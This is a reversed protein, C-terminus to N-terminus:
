ALKVVKAEEGLLFRSWKEMVEGRREFLDSRAYSREVKDGFAHALAAEAVEREVKAYESCWDRFTSRFGHTTLDFYKMRDMLSKFVTDSLPKEVGPGAHASPFILDQGLGEMQELVKMAGPSLPVRHLVGSKMRQPPVFWIVDVIEKWQAERAESSRALTFIIYELCRAANGQRRSLEAMFEPMKRWDLAAMHEAKYKISPLASEIGTVPNTQSYHGAHIAWNFMSALRQKIRKATDHKSVWIVSLVALIDSNTITELPRDKLKPFAHQEMGSIWRQSHGESRFSKSLEAHFRRTAEEFTLTERKLHQAPDGGKRAVKRLEVALERAEALSVLQVSGLGYDRRKSHVVTRLVWSKSNGEGVALYLCGGDGYFGPTKLTAVKRATLKGM